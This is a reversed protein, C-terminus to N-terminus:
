CLQKENPIKPVEVLFPKVDSWKDNLKEVPKLCRPLAGIFSFVKATPACIAKVM